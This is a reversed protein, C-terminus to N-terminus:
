TQPMLRITFNGAYKGSQINERPVALTLTIIEKANAEIIQNVITASMFQSVNGSFSTELRVPYDFINTINVEKSLNLGPSLTYFYLTGAPIIIVKQRTQNVNLAEEMTLNKDTVIEVQIPHSIEVIPPMSLRSYLRYGAWLSVVLLLLILVGIQKKHRLPHQTM